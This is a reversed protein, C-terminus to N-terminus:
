RQSRGTSSDVRTGACTPLFYDFLLERSAPRSEDRWESDANLWEIGDFPADWDTWALQPRPSDPHAVIASDESGGSTRSSRSDPEGGLPYPSPQMDLAVYHGGNTSIEVADVCLM